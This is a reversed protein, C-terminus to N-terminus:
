QISDYRYTWNESKLWLLYTLHVGITRFYVFLSKREEVTLNVHMHGLKYYLKSM